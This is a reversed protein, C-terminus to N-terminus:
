WLRTSNYYRNSLPANLRQERLVGTVTWSTNQPDPRSYPVVSSSGGTMSVASPGNPVQLHGNRGQYAQHMNLMDKYNAPPGDRQLLPPQAMGRRNKFSSEKGSPPRHAINEQQKVSDASPLQMLQSPTTLVLQNGGHVVGASSNSSYDPFPPATAAISPPPPTNGRDVKVARQHPSSLTGPLSPGGGDGGGGRNGFNPTSLSLGAALTQGQQQPPRPPLHELVNSGGASHRYNGLSTGMNYYTSPSSQANLHKYFTAGNSNIDNSNTSVIPSGHFTQQQWYQQHQQQYQQQQQQQQYQHYAQQQQQYHNRRQPQQQQTPTMAGHKHRAQNPTSDGSLPPTARHRSYMMESAGM